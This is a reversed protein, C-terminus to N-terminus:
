ARSELPRLPALAIVCLHIYRKGNEGCRGPHVSTVLSHLLPDLCGPPLTMPTVPHGREGRKSRPDACESVTLLCSQSARLDGNHVNGAPVGQQGARFMQTPPFPSLRQKPHTWSTDQSPSSTLAPATVFGCLHSPRQRLFILM